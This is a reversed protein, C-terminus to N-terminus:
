GSFPNASSAPVLEGEQLEFDVSGRDDTTFTGVTRDDIVVTYRTRPTLHIVDVELEPLRHDRGPAPIELEVEGIM